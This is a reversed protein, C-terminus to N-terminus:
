SEMGHTVSNANLSIIITTRCAKTIYKLGHIMKMLFTDGRVCSKAVTLYLKGVHEWAWRYIEGGGAIFVEDDLTKRFTMATSVASELTTNLVDYKKDAFEEETLRGRGRRSVMVVSRNPLRKPLSDVTKRGMILVKGDTLEKFRKLDGELRDWPLKNQYGIIGNPDCAAIMSLHTVTM